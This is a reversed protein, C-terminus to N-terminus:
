RIGVDKALAWGEYILYFKDLGTTLTILGLTRQSAYGKWGGLRGIIWSAWKLQHQSYPNKLKDTKGELRRNLEKLCEQEPQTFVDEINQGEEESDYALKMQIIKLISSLMLVCLKRIAWGEELESSEIDFGQKKLLRFVQEILWRCAYWLIIQYAEEFNTVPYTTILRWLIPNKEKTNVERAEVAYLEVEKTTNGIATHSKKVSTHLFRVEINAIRRTVHKRNDGAVAIQYTGVNDQKGLTDWLQGGGVLIRNAKSRILLHHKEDPVRSLQDYIDGERDQIIIVQEAEQLVEKSENAARIWKYSEKDEIRQRQYKREHRDEMELPRHWLALSSFGLPHLTKADVVLTPHIKFGISGKARDTRGIGSNAKLRKSHATLNVESTDQIALVIRDQCLAKTRQTLEEILIKEEV